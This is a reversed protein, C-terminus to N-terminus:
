RWSRGSTWKVNWTSKWKTRQGRSNSVMDGLVEELGCELIRCCATKILGLGQVRFGSKYVCGWFAEGELQATNDAPGEIYVAETVTM